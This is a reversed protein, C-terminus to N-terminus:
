IFYKSINFDPKGVVNALCSYNDAAFTPYAMNLMSQGDSQVQSSQMPLYLRLTSDYYYGGNSITQIASDPIISDFYYFNSITGNFNPDGGIPPAWASWGILNYMRMTSIPYPTSVLNKNQGNVYLTITNNPKILLVMTRPVNDNVNTYIQPQNPQGNNWTGYLLNGSLIALFINNNGAGNSFDFIRGWNATNLSQFTFCFTLGVTGTSFPIVQLYQQPYITANLNLGNNIIGPVSLFGAAFYTPKTFAMNNLSYGDALLEGKNLPLYFVLSSDSYFKGQSITQIASSSIISNFNYFNKISGNLYPDTYWGSLAINNNFRMIVPPYPCTNITFVQIGNIYSTLTKNPNITIILNRWVNDNINQNYITYYYQATGQISYFWLYGNVISVIINNSSFSGIFGPNNNFDFIRSNMATNNCQFDCCFTLGNSGIKFPIIKAYFKNQYNLNLSTSIIGQQPIFAWPNIIPSVSNYDEKSSIQNIYILVLIIIFFFLLFAM